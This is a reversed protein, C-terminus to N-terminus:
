RPSQARLQLRAVKVQVLGAIREGTSQRCPTEGGVPLALGKLSLLAGVGLSGVLFVDELVNAIASRFLGVELAADDTRSYWAHFLWACSSRGQAWQRVVLAYSLFMSVLSNPLAYILYAAFFDLCRSCVYEAVRAWGGVEAVDVGELSEPSCLAWFSSPHIERLKKYLHMRQFIAQLSASNLRNRVCWAKFDRTRYLARLQKRTTANRGSGVRATGDEGCQDDENGDDTDSESTESSGHLPDPSAVAFVVHEALEEPDLGFSHARRMHVPAKPVCQSKLVDYTGMGAYGNVQGNVQRGHSSGVRTHTTLDPAPVHSAVHESRFLRKLRSLVHIGVHISAYTVLLRLWEVTAFSDADADDSSQQTMQTEFEM